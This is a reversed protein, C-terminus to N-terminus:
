VAVGIPYRQERLTMTVGIPGQNSPRQKSNRALVSVNFGHGDRVVTLTVTHGLHSNAVDQLSSLTPTRHGDVAIIEDGSRLGAKQAPSAPATSGIVNTGVPSGLWAATLFFLLLALAINMAPGGVLIIARQWWPKFGFSEPNEIDSGNEGMM